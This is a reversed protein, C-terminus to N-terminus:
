LFSNKFNDSLLPHNLIKQKNNALEPHYNLLFMEQVSFAIPYAEIREITDGAVVKGPTLIRVYTGPRNHAIFQKLVKQTGFKIGLKFCPQRPKSVQIAAEGIKFIDGINVNAENLGEVTLNEGFMGWGWDLDPYLKQWYPYVDASFLYCAKDTGGHYRRDIVADNKVDEVGLFIGEEVPHKYIGTVVNKGRWVVTQPKALNTSLTKM